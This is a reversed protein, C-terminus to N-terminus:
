YFKLLGSTLFTKLRTPFEFKAIYVLVPYPKLPNLNYKFGGALLSNVKLYKKINM